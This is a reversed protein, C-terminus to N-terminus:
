RRRFERGARRREADTRRDIFADPALRDLNDPLEVRITTGRREESQVDISGQMLDVSEKVITLGLGTGEYRRTSSTDVQQFRNFINELHKAPIGIGTDRVEIWRKGVASGARVTISGSETFKISNRLLNTLIRELKEPDLYAPPLEGEVVYSLRLGKRATVDQFTTVIDRALEDIDLLRLRLQMKRAEFKSFDLMQNIMDLLKLSNRYVQAVLRQHEPTLPGLDGQYLSQVPSLISTLPTRVEHSVNAFFQSKLIDLKKLEENARALNFRASFERFRMQDDLHSSLIVLLITSLLFFNNNLFVDFHEIKQLALIPVIYALFIVSCVVATRRAGIPIIFLFGVLVLNVGAYYTSMYGGSLHVMLVIPLACTLYVAMALLFPLNKGLTSRTLAWLLMSLAVVCLRVLAFTAFLHPFAFYDLVLFPLFLLSAVVAAIRTDRSAKEKQECEFQKRLPLTDVTSVKLQESM